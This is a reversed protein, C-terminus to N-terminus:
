RPSLAMLNLDKDLTIQNKDILRWIASLISSRDAKGGVFRAYVERAPRPDISNSVFEAIQLELDRREEQSM